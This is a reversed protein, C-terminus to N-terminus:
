RQGVTCQQQQAARLEAEVEFVRSSLTNRLDALMLNLQEVEVSHCCEADELEGQCEEVTKEAERQQSQAHQDQPLSTRRCKSEHLITMYKIPESLRSGPNQSWLWM